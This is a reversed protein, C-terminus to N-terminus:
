NPLRTRILASNPSWGATDPPPTPIGYSNRNQIRITKGAYTTPVYIKFRNPGDDYSWTTSSPWSWNSGFYAIPCEDEDDYVVVRYSLWPHQSSSPNGLGIWSVYFFDEAPSKEILIGAPKPPITDARVSQVKRKQIHTKGDAPCDYKLSFEWTGEFQWFEPRIFLGWGQANSLTSMSPIVNFCTGPLLSTEYEPEGLWKAKVEIIQSHDQLCTGFGPKIAAALNLYGGSVGEPGVFMTNGSMNNPYWYPPNTERYDYNNSWAVINVPSETVSNGPFSSGAFLLVFLCILISVRITKM